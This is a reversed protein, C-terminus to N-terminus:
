QTATKQPNDAARLYTIDFPGEGHVQVVTPSRTFAFHATRAPLYHFAGSKLAHAAVPEAKEGM